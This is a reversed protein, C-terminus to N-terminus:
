TFGTGNIILGLLNIHLHINDNAYEFVLSNKTRRTVSALQEHYHFRHLGILGLKLTKCYLIVLTKLGKLTGVIFRELLSASNQNDRAVPM